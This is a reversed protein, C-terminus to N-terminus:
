LTDCCAPIFLLAQRCGDIGNMGDSIYYVLGLVFRTVKFAIQNNHGLCQVLDCLIVVSLYIYYHRGVGM